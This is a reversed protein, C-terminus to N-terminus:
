LKEERVRRSIEAGDRGGRGRNELNKKQIKKKIRDFLFLFFLFAFDLANVRHREGTFGAQLNKNDKRIKYTM